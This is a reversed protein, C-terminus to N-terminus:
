QKLTRYFIQPKKTLIHPIITIRRDVTNAKSIDFKNSQKWAKGHVLYSKTKIEFYVTINEVLNLIFILALLMFMVSNWRYLCRHGHERVHWCYCSYGMIIAKPSFTIILHWFQFIFRLWLNEFTFSPFQLKFEIFCPINHKRLIFLMSENWTGMLFQGYTPGCLSRFM